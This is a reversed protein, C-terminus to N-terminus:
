KPKWFGSRINRLNNHNYGVVCESQLEGIRNKAFGCVGEDPESPARASLLHYFTM